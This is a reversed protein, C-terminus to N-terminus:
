NDDMTSIVLVRNGKYFKAYPIPTARSFNRVLASSVDLFRGKFVASASIPYERSTNWILDWGERNCWTQLVDRLNQGSEVVWSRVQDRLNSDPEQTPEDIAFDTLEANKDNAMEISRKDMVPKRNTKSISLVAAGDDELMESHMFPMNAQNEYMNFGSPAQYPHTMNAGGSFSDGVLNGGLNVNNEITMDAGIKSVIRINNATDTDNEYGTSTPFIQVDADTGAQPWVPTPPPLMVNASNETTNNMDTQTVVNDSAFLSNCSLVFVLMAFFRRFFM